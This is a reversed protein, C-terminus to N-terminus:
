VISLEIDAVPTRQAFEFLASGRAMLADVHRWRSVSRAREYVNVRMSATTSNYCYALEGDPDHYTVGVLQDRSADVEGTVKLGKGLAEFQWGTLSILSHNALVRLPSISRLERGGLSAVVPTGTGVVRRGAVVVASVGDVFCGPRPMGDASTFDNCHVWAWARAHKRGWLHAQQGRAGSVELRRGGVTLEGDISLDPHVLVLESNALGARRAAPHVQEYGVPAASWRLDWACDDLTGSSSLDTLTAGPISLEFPDTRARLQETGFSARRAVRGAPQERPDVMTVWLACQAGAASQGLPALVSYRIWVGTGTRGDTLTLYHVEYHGPRGDWRLANPNRVARLSGPPPSRACRRQSSRRAGM